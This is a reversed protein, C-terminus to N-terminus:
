LNEQPPNALSILQPLTIPSPEPQLEQALDPDLFDRSPVTSPNSVLTTRTSTARSLDNDDFENFLETIQSTSTSGPQSPALEFPDYWHELSM